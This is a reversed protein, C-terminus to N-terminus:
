AEIEEIINSEYERLRKMKLLKSDLTKKKTYRLYLKKPSREAATMKRKVHNM